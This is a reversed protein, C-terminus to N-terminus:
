MSIFYFLCITVPLDNLATGSRVSGVLSVALLGGVGSYAVITSRLLAALLNQQRERHVATRRGEAGAARREACSHRM